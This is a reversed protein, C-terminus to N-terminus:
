VVCSLCRQWCWFAPFQMRPWTPLVSWSEMLRAAVRLNLRGCPRPFPQRLPVVPFRPNFRLTLKHYSGCPNPQDAITRESTRMLPSKSIMLLHGEHIKPISDLIHTLIPMEPGATLDLPSFSRNLLSDHTSITSLPYRCTSSLASATPAPM